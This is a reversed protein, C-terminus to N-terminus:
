GQMKQFLIERANTAASAAAISASYGLLLDMARETQEIPDMKFNNLIKTIKQTDALNVKVAEEVKAQETTVSGYLGHRAIKQNSEIQRISNQSAADMAGNAGKVMNIYGITQAIAPDGAYLLNQRAEQESSVRVLTDDRCTASYNNIVQGGVINSTETLSVPERNGQDNIVSLPNTFPDSGGFIYEGAPNTKTLISEIATLARNSIDEINDPTHISDKYEQDFKLMVKDIESLAQKQGQLKRDVTQQALKNTDTQLMMSQAMDYEKAQGSADLEARSDYKQGNTLHKFAEQTQEGMRKIQANNGFSSRLIDTSSTIISM